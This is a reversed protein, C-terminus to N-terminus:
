CRAADPGSHALLTVTGSPAALQGARWWVDWQADGALQSCLCCQSAQLWSSWVAVTLGTAPATLARSKAVACLCVETCNLSKIFIWYIHKSYNNFLLM